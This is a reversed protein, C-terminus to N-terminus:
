AKATVRQLALVPSALPRREAAFHNVAAAMSVQALAVHDCGANRAEEVAQVILRHYKDQEGAKFADWADPILQVQPHQEAPLTAPCFLATTTVLTSQAACLVRTKGGLRQVEDALMRDTRYVLCHHGDDAFTDAVAGITSCTILIAEFWPTLSHLMQEIRQQQAPTMGGSFEAEALWHPMVIHSLATAPLGLLKAADDFIAINSAATHLCAITM